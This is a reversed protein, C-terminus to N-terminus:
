FAVKMGQNTAGEEMKLALWTVGKSRERGRVM